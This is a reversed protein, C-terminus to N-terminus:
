ALASRWVSRCTAEGHGSSTVGHAGRKKATGQGRAELRKTRHSTGEPSLGVRIVLDEAIQIAVQQLDQSRALGERM